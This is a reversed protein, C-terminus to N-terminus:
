YSPPTTRENRVNLIYDDHFAALQVGFADNAKEIVVEKTVVVSTAGKPIPIPLEYLITRPVRLFVSGTAYTLLHEGVFDHSFFWLLYRPTIKLDTATHNLGIPVSFGRHPTDKQLIKARVKRDGSAMVVFTGKPIISGHKLQTVLNGLRIRKQGSFRKDLQSSLTM